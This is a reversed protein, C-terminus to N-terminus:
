RLLLEWSFPRTLVVQSLSSVSAIVCRLLPFQGIFLSPRVIWRRFDRKEPTTAVYLEEVTVFAGYRLPLDFVHSVQSTCFPSAIPLLVSGCAEGDLCVVPWMTQKFFSPLRQSSPQAVDFAQVTGMRGNASIVRAGRWLHVVRERLDWSEPLATQVILIWGNRRAADIASAILHNVVSRESASFTFCFAARELKERIESASLLVVERGVAGELAKRLSLMNDAIDDSPFICELVFMDTWKRRHRMPVWQPCFCHVDTTRAALAAHSFNLARLARECDHSRRPIILPAASADGTAVTFSSLEAMAAADRREMAKLLHLTSPDPHHLAHLTLVHLNKSMGRRLLVSGVLQSCCLDTNIFFVHHCFTVGRLKRLLSEISTVLLPEPARARPVGAQAALDHFSDYYYRLRNGSHGEILLAGGVKIARMLANTEEDLEM